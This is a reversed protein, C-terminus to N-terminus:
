RLSMTVPPLAERALPPAEVALLIMSRAMRCTATRRPRSPANSRFVSSVLMFLRLTARSFTVALSLLIRSASKASSVEFRVLAWIRVWAPVLTSAVALEVGWLTNCNSCRYLSQVKLNRVRASKMTQGHKNQDQYKEAKQGTGLEDLLFEAHFASGDSQREVQSGIVDILVIIGTKSDACM